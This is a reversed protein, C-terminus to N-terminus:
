DCSQLPECLEEGDMPIMSPYCAVAVREFSLTWETEGFIDCERSVAVPVLYEELPQCKYSHGTIRNCWTATTCRERYLTQPLRSTNYDVEYTWPCVHADNFEALETSGEAASLDLAVNNIVVSNSVNMHQLYNVRQLDQDCDTGPICMATSFQYNLCGVLIAMKM